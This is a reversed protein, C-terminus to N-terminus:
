GLAEDISLNGDHPERRSIIMSKVTGNIGGDAPTLLDFACVKDTGDAKGATPQVSVRFQLRDVRARDVLIQVDKRAVLTVHQQHLVVVLVNCENSDSGTRRNEDRLDSHGRQSCAITSTPDM